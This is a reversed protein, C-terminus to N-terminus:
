SVHDNSITARPDTALLSRAALLYIPIFLFSLNRMEDLTGFMIFLPINVLLGVALLGRAYGPNQRWQWFVLSALVAVLLLNFGRPFPIMPAFLDDWLFYNKLTLLFHINPWLQWDVPTGTNQSYQERVFFFIALSAFFGIILFVRWRWKDCYSLLVPAYLMPVLINSEKNLVALPLLLMWLSYNRRLATLLLLCLFFLGVFDYYYGGIDFSIPFLLVFLAPLFPALTNTPQCTTNTIARLCYLSGILSLFIICYVAHFKISYEATWEDLPLNVDGITERSKAFYLEKLRYKSLYEDAFAARQESPILNVAQNTIIPVLRRYVWPREASGDLMHSLSFTAIGECFSRAQMFINVVSAAVAMYILLIFAERSILFPLAHNIKVLAAGHSKM